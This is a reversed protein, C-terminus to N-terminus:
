FGFDFIGFDLILVHDAEVVLFRGREFFSKAQEFLMAFVGPYDGAPDNTGLGLNVVIDKIMM